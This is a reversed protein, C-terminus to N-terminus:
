DAEVTFNWENKAKGESCHELLKKCRMEVYRWKDEVKQKLQTLDQNELDRELFGSLEETAHELDQQNDEFIHAVNNRVLYFAFAYTYMLTRRCDSLVDVAKKLFQTEVWSFGLLQMEKAKKEAQSYLKKEMQMSNQHNRYRNYYHLYRELAVRADEKSKDGGGEFRNCGQSGHASWDGMCLWCFEYKCAGNRCTMHNCGGNKEISVKCKPCDKTHASLWNYTESDDACKKLWLKLIGCDVPDHWEKTCQFCFVNGCDCIVPRCEALPAKVIRGCNPAPCWKLCKNSAVFSNCAYRKFADKVAQDQLLSLATMDDVAVECKQQPCSITSIGESTVKCALYGNWCERCFLHGCKLGILPQVEYCISCEAKSASQMMLNERADVLGSTRYFEDFDETEYYKEVLHEKNWNFRRLLVRCVPDSIGLVECTEHTIKDMEGILDDASLLMLGDARRQVGNSTGVESGM